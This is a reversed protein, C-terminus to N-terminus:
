REVDKGSISCLSVVQSTDRANQFCKSHVAAFLVIQLPTRSMSPFALRHNTSGNLLFTFCYQLLFRFHLQIPLQQGERCHLKRIFRLLQGELALLLWSCLSSHPTKKKRKGTCFCCLFTVSCCQTLARRCLLNRLSGPIRPM